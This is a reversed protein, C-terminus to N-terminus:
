KIDDLYQSFQSHIDLIRVLLQDAQGRTLQNKEVHMLIHEVKTLYDNYYEFIGQQSGVLANAKKIEQLLRTPSWMEDNAKKIWKFRETGDFIGQGKKYADTFSAHFYHTWVLNFNRMDKPFARAVRRYSEMTVRKEQVDQAFKDLSSDGHVISLQNAIDGKFWQNRLDLDKSITWLSIFDEWTKANTLDNPDLTIPEDPITDSLHITAVRENNDEEM